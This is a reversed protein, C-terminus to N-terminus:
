NVFIRVNEQMELSFACFWTKQSLATELYDDKKKLGIVLTFCATDSVATAPSLRRRIQACIWLDNGDYVLILNLLFFKSCNVTHALQVAISIKDFNTREKSFLANSIGHNKLSNEKSNLQELKGYLVIYVLATCLNSISGGGGGFLANLEMIAMNIIELKFVHNGPYCKKNVHTDKVSKILMLIKLLCLGFQHSIFGHLVFLTDKSTCMEM